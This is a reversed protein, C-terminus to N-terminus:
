QEQAGRLPRPPEKLKFNRARAASGTLAGTLRCAREERPALALYKPPGPRTLTGYNPDPPQGGAKLVGTGEPQWHLHTRKLGRQRTSVISTLPKTERPTWQPSTAPAHVCM